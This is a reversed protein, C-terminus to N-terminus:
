SQSTKWESKDELAQLEQSIKLIPTIALSPTFQVQQILFTFLLMSAMSLTKKGVDKLINNKHQAYILQSIGLNKFTIQFPNFNHTISDPTCHSVSYSHKICNFTPKYNFISLFSFSKFSSVCCSSLPIKVPTSFSESHEQRNSASAQAQTEMLYQLHTQDCFRKSLRFNWDKCM